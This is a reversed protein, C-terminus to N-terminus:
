DSATIPQLVENIRTGPCGCSVQCNYAMWDKEEEDECDGEAAYTDCLVYRNICSPSGNIDKLFNIVNETGRPHEDWLTLTSTLNIPKMFFEEFAEKHPLREDYSFMNVDVSSRGNWAIIVHGEKFFANLIVGDGVNIISPEPMSINMINLFDIARKKLLEQTITTNEFKMQLLSQKGLPKQRAYQMMGPYEDFDYMTFQHPTYSDQEEVPISQMSVLNTSISTQEEVHKMVEVLQGLFLPNGMSLYGIKEDNSSSIHMSVEAVRLMREDLKMRCIELFYGGIRDLYPVLVLANKNLISDDAYVPVNCVANAGDIVSIPPAASDVVVLSLKGFKSIIEQLVGKVTTECLVLNVVGQKSAFTFPGNNEDSVNENCTWLAITKSLNGDSKLANLSDCEEKDRGGCFVVSVSTASLLSVSEKLIVDMPPLSNLENSDQKRITADASKNCNKYVTMKPGTRDLDDERTDTGYMGGVIIRYSSWDGPRLAGVANLLIDRMSELHHFQGWLVIDFACYYLSPWTTATIYGEHFHIIAVQGGGKTRHMDSSIIRLKGVNKMGNVISDSLKFAPNSLYSANEAELIMMIGSDLERPQKGFDAADINCISLKQPDNKAYDKILEYHKRQDEIPQYLFTPIRYQKLLRDFDPHLFDIGHSGFVWDQDCLLPTDPLYIQIVHDFIESLEWLYRENKVFIGHDPNM